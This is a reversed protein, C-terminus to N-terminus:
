INFGAIVMRISLFLFKNVDCVCNCSFSLCVRRLNYILREEETMLKKRLKKARRVERFTKGTERQMRKEVKSRMSRGRITSMYRYGGVLGLPSISYSKTESASSSVMVNKSQVERQLFVRGCFLDVSTIQSKFDFVTILYLLFM